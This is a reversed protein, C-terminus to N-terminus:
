ITCWPHNKNFIVTHRDYLHSLSYVCIEDAHVNNSKGHYELWGSLDRNTFNLIVRGHSSYWNYNKSIEDLMFQKVKHAELGSYDGFLDYVHNQNICRDIYCIKTDLDYYQSYPSERFEKPPCFHEHKHLKTVYECYDCLRIAHLLEETITNNAAM